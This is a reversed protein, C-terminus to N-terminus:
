VISELGLEKRERAVSVDHSGDTTLELLYIPISFVSM